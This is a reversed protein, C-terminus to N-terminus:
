ERFVYANNGIKGMGNSIKIYFTWSVTGKLINYKLKVGGVDKQQKYM